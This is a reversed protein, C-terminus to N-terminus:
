FVGDIVIRIQRDHAEQLLTLFLKDASTWKWSAPDAPNEQAIIKRDGAPDPGFNADIHHFSAADYKHLSPSEFLPNFYIATIGIDKLYDLKDIVGQLDGGYRRHQVSFYFGRSNSREWAQPEYWDGTWNSIQWNAPFEHPWSGLLDDRRPDNSSDGNRFREPFIQYWIASKAWQPVSNPTSPLLGPRSDAHILLGAAVLLLFTSRVTRLTRNSM